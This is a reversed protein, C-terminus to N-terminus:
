SCASDDESSREIHSVICATVEEPTMNSSDVVVADPAARLPAVARNTDIEDRRAIDAAVSEVTAGDVTEGAQNLRRRARVEPSATLFFKFKADPFVVTGIDRGEMVIIGLKRTDHQRKVLWNRVEPIKATYSTQAAIEPARIRKQPVPKGNLELVPVGRSDLAYQLDLDPLLATVDQPAAAIDVGKEMAVWTVTRYMDGTNIYYGGLQEAVMRAITSKGSAAPGDIAIQITPKMAATDQTATM